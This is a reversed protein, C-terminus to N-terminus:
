VREWCSARGIQEQEFADTRARVVAVEDSEGFESSYVGSISRIVAKHRGWVKELAFSIEGLTARARAAEIALALLNGEGSKAAETIATLTEQAKHEDREARLKALRKIQSERVAANDVDLIELADEQELRFKNVGVIVEKGSDIRAQRRAAAEEIRMKPLGTEIAKAMGGLEEVEEILKWSRHMLENTLAEVYYSGGWPDM